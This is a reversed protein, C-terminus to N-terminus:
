GHSTGPPDVPPPPAGALVPDPGLGFGDQRSDPLHVVQRPWRAQRYEGQFGGAALGGPVRGGPAVAQTRIHWSPSWDMPLVGRYRKVERHRVVVVASGGRITWARWAM